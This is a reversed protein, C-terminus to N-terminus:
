TAELGNNKAMTGGANSKVMYIFYTLVEKEKIPIQKFHEMITQLRSIENIFRPKEHSLLVFLIVEALQPKNLGQRASVKYHRKYRRLTNMQLQVLDVEPTPMSLESDTENENSDESDKRRRRKSRVSQIRNKHYDCIHQHRASNDATLKLRRQAVTKQIRANYSAYGARQKCRLGDEILCCEDESSYGNIM